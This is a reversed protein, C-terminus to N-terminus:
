KLQRDIIMSFKRLRMIKEQIIQAEQPTVWVMKDNGASIAAAVGVGLILIVLYTAPNDPSNKFAKTRSLIGIATLAVALPISVKSWEHITFGLKGDKHADPASFDKQIDQILVKLDHAVQILEADTMQAFAEAPNDNAIKFLEAEREESITDEITTVVTVTEPDAWAISNLSLIFALMLSITKM